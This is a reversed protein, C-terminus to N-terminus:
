LQITPLNSVIDYVSNPPTPPLKADEIVHVVGNDGVLDVVTVMATDIYVDGVRTVTVDTGLLTTVVQNNSLMTSM